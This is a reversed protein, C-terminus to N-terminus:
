RSANFRVTVIDGDQVEYIAAGGMVQAASAQVPAVPIGEEALAQMMWRGAHGALLLCTFVEAGLTRAARAVNLGKGGPLVILEQPRNIEGLRFNPIVATKDVAPKPVITLVPLTM